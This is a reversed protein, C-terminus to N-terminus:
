GEKELVTLNKRLMPGYELKAPCVFTCLALDEEDLELGGLQEIRELDDSALARLLYTPQIDLPMVKEYTGMPVIARRGGYQNTTFNFKRRPLLSSLFAHTTSFLNAGPAMWGLFERTRGEPVVSVQNHYRGLYGFIEGMARRGSLVSGSIVRQEGEHLEGPVIEDLYAGLRTRMLRPRLVGPGAFSIVRTVDLRGTNFLAGVALVDQYGIYWVTKNRSVPDVFHIHTGVNGAPHPGVFDEENLGIHRSPPEMEPRKCLYVEGDTLKSVAVLGTEFDKQRGELATEVPPALPNTDIATIFISFPSTAPDATRSYPRARLSTWLGSELLLAKVEERNYTAISNGSYSEFDAFEDDKPAGATETETLAIVISQFARKAGRNVAMVTGAGPACFRVGAIKKDEFLLQGRKVTDGAAVAMTPKMGVYDDALIAVRSVRPAETLGPEPAGAIPM